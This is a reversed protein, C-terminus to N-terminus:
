RLEAYLCDHKIRHHCVYPSPPGLQVNNTPGQGEDIGASRPTSAEPNSPPDRPAFRCELALLSITVSVKHQQLDRNQQAHSLLFLSAVGEGPPLPTGVAVICDCVSAHYTGSRVGVVHTEKHLRVPQRPDYTPTEM